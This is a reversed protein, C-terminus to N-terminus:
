NISIDKDISQARKKERREIFRALTVSVEFLLIMPIILLFDSIFDPPTISVGIIILM